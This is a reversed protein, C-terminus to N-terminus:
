LFFSAAQLSGVFNLFQYSSPLGNNLIVLTDNEMLGPSLDPQFVYKTRLEYRVEDTGMFNINFKETLLQYVYPGRVSLM